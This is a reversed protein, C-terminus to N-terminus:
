FLNLTDINKKFIPVSNNNIREFSLQLNPSKGGHNDHM